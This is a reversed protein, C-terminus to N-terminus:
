LRGVLDGEYVPKSVKLGILQGKKALSVNENEIQMSSILQILSGHKGEISLRDGKRLVGRDIRVVCVKIKHFYHTVEGVPTVATNMEKKSSIPKSHSVSALKSKPLTPHSKSSAKVQKPKHKVSARSKRKVPVSKKKLLRESVKLTKKSKWKKVSGNKFIKRVIKLFEKLISM